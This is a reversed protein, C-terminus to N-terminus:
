THAFQELFEERNACTKNHAVDKKVGKVTKVKKWLHDSSELTLSWSANVVDENILKNRKM